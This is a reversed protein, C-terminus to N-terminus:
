KPIQLVQCHLFVQRFGQQLDQNRFSEPCSSVTRTDQLVSVAKDKRRLYEWSLFTTRSTLNCFRNLM